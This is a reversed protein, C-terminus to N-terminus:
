IYTDQAIMSEKSLSSTIVVLLFLYLLSAVSLPNIELVYLCSM